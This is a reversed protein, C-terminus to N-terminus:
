SSGPAIKLSPFAVRFTRRDLTLLPYGRVMAHAGIVFDSAIRRPPGLPEKRRKSFEHSAKAAARWVTEELRWDVWIGTKGLFYEVKAEDRDRLARIEVYVQPSIVLEGIEVADELAKSAETNLVDDENWFAILINSDVATTM